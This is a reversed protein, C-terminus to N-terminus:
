RDSDRDRSASAAATLADRGMMSAGPSPGIVAGYPVHVDGSDARLTAAPPTCSLRTMRSPSSRYQSSRLGSSPPRLTTTMLLGCPRIASTVGMPVLTRVRTWSYPPAAYVTDRRVM